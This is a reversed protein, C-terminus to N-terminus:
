IKQKERIEKIFLNFDFIDKKLVELMIDINIEGYAHALINRFGTMKKMKLVMEKSILKQEGLIEFIEGYTSPTRLNLYSILAEAFEITTQCILYLYREVAGKLTVDKLLDDKKIYQYNKLLNLYKQIESIKNKLVDINTM